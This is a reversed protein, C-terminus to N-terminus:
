ATPREDVVHTVSGDVGVAVMCPPTPGYFKEMSALEAKLAERTPCTVTTEDGEAFTLVKRAKTNVWIGFYPADQDTDYQKWDSGLKSDYHYRERMCWFAREITNGLKNTEVRM